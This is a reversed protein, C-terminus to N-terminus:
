RWLHDQILMTSSHDARDPHDPRNPHDPGSPHDITSALYSKKLWSKPKRKINKQTEKLNRQRSQRTLRPPSSPV